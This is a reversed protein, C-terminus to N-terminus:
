VPRSPQFAIGLEGGMLGQTRWAPPCSCQGSHANGPRERSGLVSRLARGMSGPNRGFPLKVKVKRLQKRKRAPVWLPCSWPSFKAKSVSELFVWGPSVFKPWSEKGRVLEAMRNLGPLCFFERSEERLPHFHLLPRDPTQIEIVVM